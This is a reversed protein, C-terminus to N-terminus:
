KRLFGMLTTNLRGLQYSVAQSAGRRRPALERSYALAPEYRWLAVMWVSLCLISSMNLVIGFVRGYLASRYAEAIAFNVVNIGLYISFGLMIGSINKGITLRYHRAAALLSIIVAAKTLSARKLFDLMIASTPRPDLLSPFVYLFLFILCISVILLRGLRRVAPYPSFIHDSAEALVAFEVVVTTFFRFWFISAYYTKGWPYIVWTAIGSIIAYILYSYFYRFQGLFRGQIARAVIITALFFFLM